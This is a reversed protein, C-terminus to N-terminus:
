VGVGPCVEGDNVKFEPLWNLRDSGRIRSKGPLRTVLERELDLLRDLAGSETRAKSFGSVPDDMASSAEFM